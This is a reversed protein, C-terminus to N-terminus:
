CSGRRALARTKRIWRDKFADKSELIVLHEPWVQTSGVAGCRSDGMQRLLGPQEERVSFGPATPM